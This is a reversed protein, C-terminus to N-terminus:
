PEHQTLGESLKGDPEDFSSMAHRNAFLRHIRVAVGRKQKPHATVLL